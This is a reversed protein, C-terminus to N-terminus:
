WRGGEVWDAEYCFLWDRFDSSNLMLKSMNSRYERYIPFLPHSEDTKSAYGFKGPIATYEFKGNVM